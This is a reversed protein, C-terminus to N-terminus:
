TFFEPRSYFAMSQDNIDERREFYFRIVVREGFLENCFVYSENVWNNLMDTAPQYDPDINLAIKLDQIAEIKKGAEKYIEARELYFSNYAAINIAETYNKIAEDFNKRTRFLNGRKKYGIANNPELKIFKDYDSLAEQFKGASEFAIGRYYYVFNSKQGHQLSQNFDNIALDNRGFEQYSDGRYM